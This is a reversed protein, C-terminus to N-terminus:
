FQLAAQNPESQCSFDSAYQDWENRTFERIHGDQPGLWHAYCKPCFRNIWREVPPGFMPKNFDIRAIDPHTCTM